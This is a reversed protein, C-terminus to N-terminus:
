PSLHPWTEEIYVFCAYSTPFHPLDEAAPVSMPLVFDAVDLLDDLRSFRVARMEGRTRCFLPVYTEGSWWSLVRWKLPYYTHRVDCKLRHWRTTSFFDPEGFPGGHTLFRILNTM